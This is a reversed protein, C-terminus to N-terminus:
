SLSNSSPKAIIVEFQEATPEALARFDFAKKRTLGLNKYTTTLIDGRPVDKKGWPLRRALGRAASRAPRQLVGLHRAPWLADRSERSAASSSPKL